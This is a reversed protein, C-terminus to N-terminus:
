LVEKFREKDATCIPCKHPAKNQSVYGCFQCVFYQMDKSISLDKTERNYFSLLIKEAARLQTLAHVLSKMGAKEAARIKESYTDINAQTEKEFITALYHPSKDIRGRMSHYMRKAQVAESEMMTRLLHAAEADGERAAKRSYIKKRAASNAIMGYVDFLDTEMTKVMRLVKKPYDTQVSSFLQCGTM